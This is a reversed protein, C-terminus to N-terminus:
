QSAEEEEVEVQRAPWRKKERPGVKVGGRREDVENGL